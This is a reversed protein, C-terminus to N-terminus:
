LFVYYLEFCFPGKLIPNLNWFGFFFLDLLEVVNLFSEISIIVMPLYDGYCWAAAAAALDSWDHGVRHSGMSPLGGPERMWPIKWALVSSHAAMAKESAFDYTQTFSKLAYWLDFTFKVIYLSSRGIILFLGVVQYYFPCICPCVNWLFNRIIILCIPKGPTMYPHSLQVM